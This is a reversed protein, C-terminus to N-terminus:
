GGSLYVWHDNFHLTTQHWLQDPARPFVHFEAVLRYDTPFSVVIAGDDLGCGLWKISQTIGAGKIEQRFVFFKPDHSCCVTHRDKHRHKDLIWWGICFTNVVATTLQESWIGDTVYSHFKSIFCHRLPVSLSLEFCQSFFRVWHWM